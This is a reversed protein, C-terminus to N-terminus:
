HIASQWDHQRRTVRDRWSSQLMIKWVSASMSLGTGAVGLWRQPLQELADCMSYGHELGVCPDCFCRCRGLVQLVLLKRGEQLARSVCARHVCAFDQSTSWAPGELIDSCLKGRLRLVSGELRIDKHHLHSFQRVGAPTMRPAVCDGALELRDRMLQHNRATGTVKRANLM